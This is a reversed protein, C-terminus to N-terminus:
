PAGLLNRTVWAGALLLAGLGAVSGLRLGRRGAPLSSLGVYSFGALFLLLFPVALWREAALAIGLGAAFYTAMVVELWAFRGTEETSPERPLDGPRRVGYKPTRQFASRHGLVAELVGRGNNLSMGIGLSLLAPVLILTRWFGRGAVLQCTLHYAVVCLTTFGFAAAVALYLPRDTDYRPLLTPVWLFCPISMLLWAVNNTLHVGAEAKVRWPLPSRLIRPLLKRATQVSGKAWRHQQAKFARMEIPLEAASEVDDLYVFRWGALQARYSLDLDETLTDGQWGGSAQIADRRWVGATGNFNFFRGSRHRAVHEIRFHGDLFIAQLRTLLSYDRNLHSWRAQVMAVRPDAFHGVTRLLFDEPPVFDADFLAVLEARSGKLGTALAGAKFGDRRERRLHLVPVGLRRLRRVLTAVRQATADTSDDLVQIELKERPYELRACALVLRPIVWRENYVPLQVTVSPWPAGARPVRPPNRRVRLYVVLLFLRHLGFLGLAALSLFYVVVLLSM